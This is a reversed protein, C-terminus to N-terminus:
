VTQSPGEHSWGATYSATVDVGEIQISKTPPAGDLLLASQTTCIWRGTEWDYYYDAALSPGSEVSWNGAAQALQADLLASPDTTESSIMLPLLEQVVAYFAERAESRGAASLSKYSSAPQIDFSVFLAYKM